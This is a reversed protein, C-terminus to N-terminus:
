ADKQTFEALGREVGGAELRNRAAVSTRSGRTLLKANKDDGYREKFWVTEDERCPRKCHTEWEEKTLPVGYGEDGEMVILYKTGLAGPNYPDGTGMIPNQNQAKWVAPEPIEYFGQPIDDRQGDFMVSLAIPARNFVKLRKLFIGV